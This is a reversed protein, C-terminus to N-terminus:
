WVHRMLFNMKSLMADEKDGLKKSSFYHLVDSIKVPNEKDENKIFYEFM